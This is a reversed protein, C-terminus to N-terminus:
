WGRAEWSALQPREAGLTTPLGHGPHVITSDPLTNFVREVVDTFLQKFRAPDKDTNGIGGPFLSDGSFLHAPGDGSRLLLAISGPTHGRLAIVELDFGAFNEVGGHDLRVDVPVPLSDADASGAATRVHTEAVLEALAGVHDYHAHTTIVLAVYATFQPEVDQAGAAILRTIAPLDAAADIVVQAGTAKATLLYVNNSMPGVVAQRLTVQGIHELSDTM